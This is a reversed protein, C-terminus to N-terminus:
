DDWVLWGVDDFGDEDEVALEVLLQEADDHLNQAV